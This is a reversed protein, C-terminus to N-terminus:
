KREMWSSNKSCSKLLGTCTNGATSGAPGLTVEVKNSQIASTGHNGAVALHITVEEGDLHIKKWFNKIFRHGHRAPIVCLWPTKM